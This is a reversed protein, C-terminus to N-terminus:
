FFGTMAGELIWTKFGFNPKEDWTLLSGTIPNFLALSVFSLIIGSIIGASVGVISGVFMGFLAGVGFIPFGAVIGCVLGLM